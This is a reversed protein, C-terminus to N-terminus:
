VSCAYCEESSDLWVLMLFPLYPPVLSDRWTKLVGPSRILDSGRMINMTWVSCAIHALSICEKQLPSQPIGALTEVARSHAELTAEQSWWCFELNVVQLLLLRTQRTCPLTENASQFWIRRITSQRLERKQEEFCLPPSDPILPIQGYFSKEQEIATSQGAACKGVDALVASDLAAYKVKIAKIIWLKASHGVRGQGM